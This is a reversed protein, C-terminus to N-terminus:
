IRDAKTSWIPLRKVNFGYGEKFADEVALLEGWVGIDDDQWGLLIVIVKRDKENDQLNIDSRQEIDQVLPLQPSSLAMPTFHAKDFTIQQNNPQTRLTAEL